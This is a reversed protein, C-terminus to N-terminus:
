FTMWGHLLSSPLDRTKDSVLSGLITNNFKAVFFFEFGLSIKSDNLPLKKGLLLVLSKRFKRTNKEYCVIIM